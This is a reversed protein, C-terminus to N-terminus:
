SEAQRNGPAFPPLPTASAHPFPLWLAQLRRNAGNGSYPFLILLEHIHTMLLGDLSCGLNISTDTRKLTTMISLSSKDIFSLCIGTDILIMDYLFLSYM